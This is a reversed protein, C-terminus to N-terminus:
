AEMAQVLKKLYDLHSGFKRHNIVRSVFYKVLLLAAYAGFRVVLPLVHWKDLMRYQQFYPVVEILIIFYVLTVRVGVLKWRLRTELLAVQQELHPRVAAEVREMKGAIQYNRYAFVVVGMCFLVYSWFLVNSLVQHSAGGTALLLMAPLVLMVIMQKQFARKLAAETGYSKLRILEMIEANKNKTVPIANWSQKLEDLEMTQLKLM